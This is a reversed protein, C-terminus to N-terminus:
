TKVNPRNEDNINALILFTERWSGPLIRWNGTKLIQEVPVRM